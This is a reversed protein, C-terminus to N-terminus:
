RKNLSGNLLIYLHFHLQKTAIQKKQFSNIIKYISFKQAVKKRYFSFFLLFTHYSTQTTEGISPLQSSTFKNSKNSEKITETMAPTTQWRMQLHSSLFSYSLWGLPNLRRILFLFGECAAVQSPKQKSIPDYQIRKGLCM